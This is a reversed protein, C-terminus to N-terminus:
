PPPQPAPPPRRPGQHANRNPLLHPGALSHLIPAEQWPGELPMARLLKIAVISGEYTDFAEYVDAQGGPSLARVLQYRGGVLPVVRAGAGGGATLRIEGTAAVETLMDDLNQRTTLSEISVTM